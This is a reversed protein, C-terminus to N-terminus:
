GLDPNAANMRLSNQRQAEGTQQDKKRTTGKKKEQQKHGDWIRFSVVGCLRRCLYKFPHNFITQSFLNNVTEKKKGKKKKKDIHLCFCAAKLLWFPDSVTLMKDSLESEM